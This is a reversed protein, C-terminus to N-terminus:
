CAETKWSSRVMWFIILAQLNETQGAGISGAIGQPEVVSDEPKCSNFTLSMMVVTIAMLSLIFKKM